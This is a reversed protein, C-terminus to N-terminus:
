NVEVQQVDSTGESTPSNYALSVLWVGKTSFESAPVRVTPCSISKADKIAGVEKSFSTSSNKFLAICKGGDEYLDVYGGIEVSSGYQKAYTIIPKINKKSNTQSKAPASEITAQRQENRKKTEDARLLDEKTAPELNVADSQTTDTASQKSNGLQKKIYLCGFVLMPLIFITVTLLIKKSKLM